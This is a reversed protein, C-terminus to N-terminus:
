GAGFCVFTALPEATSADALAQAPAAGAALSRHVATMVTAATDHAVRSVSAVVCATGAHLLAATFGLHEDGATVVARGVDCASLTILRPVRALQQMDYVMLPGDALDLRSFLGNDPEHHGHAALHAMPAGDMGSLTATVTALEGRLTRSTPYLRAIGELEAEAHLLYPGAVLLPAGLIAPDVQGANLWATASPAVTVPRGRLAPLM